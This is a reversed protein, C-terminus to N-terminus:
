RNAVADLVMQDYRGLNVADADDFWRRVHMWVRVARAPEVLRGPDGHVWNMLFNLQVSKKATGCTVTLTQTSGDPVIEGYQGKLDFFSERVLIARLEELQADTVTFSRKTQNPFSRITLDADGDPSVDLKWSWGDAFDGENSLSLSIPGGLAPASGFNNPACSACTLFFLTVAFRSWMIQYTADLEGVRGSALKGM